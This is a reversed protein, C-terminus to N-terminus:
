GRYIAAYFDLCFADRYTLAPNSVFEAAGDSHVSELWEDM